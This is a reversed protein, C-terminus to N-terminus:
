IRMLFCAAWKQPEIYYNTVRSAFRVHASQIYTCIVWILNCIMFGIAGTGSRQQWTVFSMFTSRCRIPFHSVCKHRDFCQIWLWVFCNWHIHYCFLVFLITTQRDGIGVNSSLRGFWYVFPEFRLIEIERVSSANESSSCYGMIWWFECPLDAFPIKAKRKKWRWKVNWCHFVHSRRRNEM